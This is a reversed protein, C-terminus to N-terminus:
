TNNKIEPIDLKKLNDPLNSLKKIKKIKLELTELSSGDPIILELLINSYIFLKKLSKPLILKDAEYGYLILEELKKPLKDYFDKNYQSNIKLM